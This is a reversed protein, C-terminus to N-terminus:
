YAVLISLLELWIIISKGTVNWNKKYFIAHMGDLNPAKLSGIQESPM